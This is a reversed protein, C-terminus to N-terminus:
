IAGRTPSLGVVGRNVAAHVVQQALSSYKNKRKYSGKGKKNEIRSAKNRIQLWAQLQEPNMKFMEKKM